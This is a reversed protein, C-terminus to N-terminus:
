SGSAAGHAMTTACPNCRATLSVRLTPLRTVHCGLCSLVGGVASPRSLCCFFLLLPLVSQTECLFSTCVKVHCRLPHSHSATARTPQNPLCAACVSPVCGVLFLDLHATVVLGLLRVSVFRTPSGQCVCIGQRASHWFSRRQEAVVVGVVRAPAGFSHPTHFMIFTSGCPAQQGVIFAHTTQQTTTVPLEGFCPTTSCIHLSRV